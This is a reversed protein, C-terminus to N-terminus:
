FHSFFMCASGSPFKKPDPQLEGNAARDGLSWGCDIGVYTYGLKDLGKAVMVDAMGMQM